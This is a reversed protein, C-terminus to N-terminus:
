ARRAVLADRIEALLKEERTPEPPTVPAPPKERKLRNIAKIAMFICAAVILFNIVSNLFLGYRVEVPPSQGLPDALSVSLAKFDVKGLAMGIPPMLVDNVLSKVIEGFAGGIVVGVAMDMVNGKTAFEKFEQIISMVIGRKPFQETSTFRSDALM